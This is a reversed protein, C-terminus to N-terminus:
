IKLNDRSLEFRQEFFSICEDLTSFNKRIFEFQVEFGGNIIESASQEASSIAFDQRVENDSSNILPLATESCLEYVLEALESSLDRNDERIWLAFASMVGQEAIKQPDVLEDGREVDSIGVLRYQDKWCTECDPCYVDQTAYGSDVEVADAQALHLAGCVPCRNGGHAVYQANTMVGKPISWKAVDPIDQLQPQRSTTSKEVLGAEWENWNAFGFAKAVLTLCDNHSIPKSLKGSSKLERRFASVIAKAQDKTNIFM